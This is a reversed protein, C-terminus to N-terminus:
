RGAQDSVVQLLDSTEDLGGATCSSITHQGNVANLSSSITSNKESKTNVVILQKFLHGNDKNTLHTASRPNRQQLPM